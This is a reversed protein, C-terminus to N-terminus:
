FFYDTSTLLAQRVCNLVCREGQLQVLRLVNCLRLAALGFCAEFVDGLGKVRQGKIDECIEFLLTNSLYTM